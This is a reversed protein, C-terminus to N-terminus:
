LAKWTPVGASTVGSPNTILGIRRGAIPSPDDLLVDIGPRVSVASSRSREVAAEPLLIDM